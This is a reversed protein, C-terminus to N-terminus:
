SIWVLRLNAVAGPGGPTGPGLTPLLECLDDQGQFVVPQSHGDLACSM